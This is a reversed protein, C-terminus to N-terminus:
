NIVLRVQTENEISLYNSEIDHVIKIHGTKMNKMDNVVKTICDRAYLYPVYAHRENMEPPSLLSTTSQSM